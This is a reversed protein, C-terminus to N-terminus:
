GREPAGDGGHSHALPVGQPWEQSQGESFWRLWGNRRDFPTSRRGVAHPQRQKRAPIERSEHTERAYAAGNRTVAWIRSWWTRATGGPLPKATGRCLSHRGATRSATWRSPARASGLSATGQDPDFGLASCGRRRGRGAAHQWRGCLRPFDSAAQHRFRATGLRAIAGAPLPQGNRDLRVPPDQATPAKATVQQPWSQDPLTLTALLALLPLLSARFASM